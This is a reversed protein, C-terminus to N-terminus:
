PPTSSAPLPTLPLGVRQQLERLREILKTIQAWIDDNVRQRATLSHVTSAKIVATAQDMTGKINVKDGVKLTERSTGSPIFNAGAMDVKLTLGWVKVEDIGPTSTASLSTIEGRIIRTQGQPGVFLSAPNDRISEIEPLDFRELRELAKEIKGLAKEEKKSDDNEALVTSSAVSLTLVFVTFIVLIKKMTKPHNVM